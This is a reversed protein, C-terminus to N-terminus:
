IRKSVVSRVTNEDVEDVGLKMHSASPSHIYAKPDSEGKKRHSDRMTICPLSVLLRVQLCNEEREIERKTVCVCVCVCVCVYLRPFCVVMRPPTFSCIARANRKGEKKDLLLPPM